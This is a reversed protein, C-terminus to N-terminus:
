KRKELAPIMPEKQTFVKNSHVLIKIKGSCSYCSGETWLIPELFNTICLLLARQLSFWIIVFPSSEILFFFFVFVTDSRDQRRIPDRVCLLVKAGLLRFCGM